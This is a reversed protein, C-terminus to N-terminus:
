RVLATTLVPGLRWHPRGDLSVSEFSNKPSAGEFESDDEFDTDLIETAESVMSVPRMQSTRAEWFSANKAFM